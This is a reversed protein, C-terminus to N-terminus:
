LHGFGMRLHDPQVVFDVVPTPAGLGEIRLPLPIGDDDFFEMTALAVEDSTNILTFLTSAGAGDALQALFVVHQRSFSLLQTNTLVHLEGRAATLGNVSPVAADWLLRGSFADLARIRESGSNYFYITNNSVLGYLPRGPTDSRDIVRWM